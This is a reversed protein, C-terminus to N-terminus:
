PLFRQRPKLSMHFHMYVCFDCVGEFVGRGWDFSLVQKVNLECRFSFKSSTERHLYFKQLSRQVQVDAVDAIRPFPKLCNESPNELLSQGRSTSLARKQGSRAKTIGLYWTFFESLHPHSEHFIGIHVESAERGEREVNELTNSSM